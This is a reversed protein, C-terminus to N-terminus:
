TTVEIEQESRFLVFKFLIFTFVSFVLIVTAIVVLYWNVGVLATLWKVVQAQVYAMVLSYAVFITLRRVHRDKTKFTVVTHLTFNYALNAGIGVLFGTFYNERGFVFETLLATVGLNIAVGTSGVVFFHIFRTRHLHNFWWFPNLLYVHRLM